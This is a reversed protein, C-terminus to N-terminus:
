QTNVVMLVTLLHHISDAYQWLVIHNNGGTSYFIIYKPRHIAMISHTWRPLHRYVTWRIKEFWCRHCSNNERRYHISSAPRHHNIGTQRRWTLVVGGTHLTATAVLTETQRAILAGVTLVVYVVTYCLGTKVTSDTTIQETAKVTVTRSISWTLSASSTNKDQGFSQMYVSAHACVCVCVYVYVCTCRDRICM